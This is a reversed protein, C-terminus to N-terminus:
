PLVVTSKKRPEVLADRATGTEHLVEVPWVGTRERWKCWAFALRLREPVQSTKRERPTLM